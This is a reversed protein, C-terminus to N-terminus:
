FFFAYFFLPRSNLFPIQVLPPSFFRLFGHRQLWCNRAPFCRKNPPGLVMLFPSHELDDCEVFDQHRPTSSQLALWVSNPLLCSQPHVGAHSPFFPSSCSLHIYVRPLPKQPQSTTCPLLCYSLGGAFVILPLFAIRWPDFSEQDALKSACRHPPPPAARGPCPRSPFLCLPLAPPCWNM